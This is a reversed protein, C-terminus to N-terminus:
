KGELQKTEKELEKKKVEIRKKYILYELINNSGISLSENFWKELGVKDFEKLNELMLRAQESYKVIM